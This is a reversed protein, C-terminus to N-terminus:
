GGLKGANAPGGKALKINKAQLFCFDVRVSPFAMVVVNHEPGTSHFIFVSVFRNIEFSGTFSGSIIIGVIFDKPCSYFV